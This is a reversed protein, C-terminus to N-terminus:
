LKNVIDLTCKPKQAWMHHHPSLSRFAGEIFVFNAIPRIIHSAYSYGYEGIYFLNM